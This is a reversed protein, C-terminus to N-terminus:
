EEYETEKKRGSRFWTGLLLMVMGAAALVPVPWNLQGTQPLNPPPTSPPTTPPTTEPERELESKVAATVHYCYQGDEMYPVSVLFPNLKTYGEAAKNQVILYLGVGLGSFTAKGDKVSQTQTYFEHDKKNNRYFEAMTEPLSSSSIDELLENTIAQRFYYNGDDEQVYGVCIATLTGGTIDEGKYRVLLEISCDTKDMQVYDHAYATLPQCLLIALALLLSFLRKM